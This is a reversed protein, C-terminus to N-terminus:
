AAKLLRMAPILAIGFAASLGGVFWFTQLTTFGFSILLVGGIFAGVGYGIHEVGHNAGMAGARNEFVTREAIVVAQPVRVLMVSLGFVVSWLVLSLTSPQFFILALAVGEVLFGLAMFVVRKKTTDVLRGIPVAALVSALAMISVLYPGVFLSPASTNGYQTLYVRFLTFGISVFFIALLSVQVERDSVARYLLVWRSTPNDPQGSDPLAASSKVPRREPMGVLAVLAGALLIAGTIYFTGQNGYVQALAFGLPTGFMFMAYEATEVLGYAEGVDHGTSVDGAYALASTTYTAHGIGILLLLFSMAVIIAPAGQISGTLSVAVISGGALLCGFAGTVRRGFIDALSGLPVALVGSLLLYASSVLYGFGFAQLATYGNNLLLLDLWALISTFAMYEGAYSLLTM